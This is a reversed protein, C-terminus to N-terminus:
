EKKKDDAGQWIHHFSGPQDTREFTHAGFFDRQAQILNAPLRARRYGDFYALASYFAPIPMGASIAALVVKRWDSEREKMATAIEPYLLLNALEPNKSFAAKIDDLLASRIICGGKWIRALEPIKLDYGYEGSAKKLLATGQSYLSIKSAYLAAEVAKVIDGKFAAQKKMGGYVKEALIRESKKSSLNRADVAAGITSVPEGLSLAEQSTWQGTGKQGASDQIVDVLSKQTVPDKERLVIETIEVLYSGFEGRNYEKFIKAIEKNELGGINKLIDYAEAILQMDGYELGNHVMKVFHGAGGPGIYSVCPGDPTRAAIAEFVPKLRQFGKEPGGPMISPGKLAGEEGGSVGVGMYALGKELLEKERRETDKFFSNGCDVVMDGPELLPALQAIMDDVAKGAKVMVLINRPKKLLTVFDKLSEGMEIPLRKAREDMFKKATEITRNFVATKFKHGAINLVLNQGMVALGILGLECSAM